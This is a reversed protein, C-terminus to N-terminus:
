NIKLIGEQILTHKLAILPELEQKLRVIEEKEKELAINRKKIENNELKLREKEEICLAAMISAYGLMKDNGELLDKPTPLIYVGSVGIAKHGMLMEVYLPSLGQVTSTTSFWKRCGHSMMVERRRHVVQNDKSINGGAELRRERLGSSLLLKFLRARLSFTTIARPNAARLSDDIDFENRLLPDELKVRDGHRRRYDLYSDIASTTEASCFTVYEQKTNEYVTIQYIGYKSIKELNRVRLSEIAGIRIGSSCMLLITIKLRKDNAADLLVKIEERTYPRDRVTKVPEAIFSRIKKWNIDSIDSMDYFHRLAACYATVSAASLKKKERLYILWDIIRSQILKHEGQLLEDCTTVHRFIMYQRLAKRYSNRTAETKASYIFNRYAEGSFDIDHATRM